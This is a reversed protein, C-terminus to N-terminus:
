TIKRDVIFLKEVNIEKLIYDSDDDESFSVDKLM